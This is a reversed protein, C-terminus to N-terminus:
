DAVFRRLQEAARLADASPEAGRAVARILADDAKYLDNGFRVQGNRMYATFYAIYVPVKRPLNVRRDDAGEQQMAQRVREEPWGLVWAGLQEPRELRICGHSFARVDEKFLEDQPTDHLYINYDNPFMYKVLGLSNKPGPKQRVRTKGNEEFLEYNNAELYGPDAAAKPLLEKEAIDDTVMWYPRFVAYEMSDSFVPTIRGEFEEGVIVKMELAKKGDEFAELRFAPVNVLIYRSGLNRPFWRFRELNAAIQWLRNAAPVNLSAVTGAGLVSDAEISHRAQYEAVAGALRADYVGTARATDALLGEAMLRRRLAELRAPSDRDGPKLDRGTPVKPWGGAVALRRYREMERQLAAYDEDQPRMRAISLDLPEERLARTLASDISEEQPDIFWTKSITRPDIQGTLLDEGLAAYAATLVVDAEALQQATPRQADKVAGLSRILDNLPYADLRLADQHANVVAKLLAAARAEILGDEGLWLPGQGYRRYLRQAYRWQRENIPQPRAAGLRQQIATRVQAAPVGSVETVAGPNWSRGAAAEGGKNGEAAAGGRGCGSALLFLPALLILISARAAVPSKTM